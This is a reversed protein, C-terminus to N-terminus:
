PKIEKYSNKMLTLTQDTLTGSQKMLHIVAGLEPPCDLMSAQAEPILWALEGAFLERAQPSHEFVGGYLGVQKALPESQMLRAAQRALDHMNKEVIGLAM